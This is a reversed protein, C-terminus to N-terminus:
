QGELETVREELEIDTIEMRVQSEREELSLATFKTSIDLSNDRSDLKPM